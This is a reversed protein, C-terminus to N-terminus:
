LAMRRVFPTVGVFEFDVDIPTEYDIMNPTRGDLFNHFAKPPNVQSRRLVDSLQMMSLLILDLDNRDHISGIGQLLGVTPIGCRLKLGCEGHRQSPLQRSNMNLSVISVKTALDRLRRGHYTHSTTARDILAGILIYSM